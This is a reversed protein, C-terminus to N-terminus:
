VEYQCQSFQHTQELIIWQNILQLMSQPSLQKQKKYKNKCADCTQIHICNFQIVLKNLLNM